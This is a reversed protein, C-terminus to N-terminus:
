TQYRFEDVLSQCYSLVSELLNDEPTDPDHIGTAHTCPLCMYVCYAYLHM